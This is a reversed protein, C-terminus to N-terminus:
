KGMLTQIDAVSLGIVDSIETDNMGTKQLKVAMAEKEKMSKEREEERGKEIGIAEGEERAKKEKARLIDAEDRAWKLRAEYMMWEDETFQTTEFVAMAKKVLAESSLEKPLTELTYNEGKALLTAWRDLTTKIEKMDEPVKPLEVYHLELADTLLEHSEEHRIQYVNHYSASDNDMTYNLLHISIVKNLKDYSESEKLQDVYVKSWYYLSRSLYDFDNNIQMEITYWTGLVNKAKIDLISFKNKSSTKLNNPNKVEIESVQDKESVIANILGMLLDTNREFIIKFAFDIRPSIKRM